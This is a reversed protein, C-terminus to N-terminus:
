FWSPMQFKPDTIVLWLAWVCVAIAILVLITERKSV